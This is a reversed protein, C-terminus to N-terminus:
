GWTKNNHIEGELQKFERELDKMKFNDKIKGNIVLSKDLKM